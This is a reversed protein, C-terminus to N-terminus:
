SSHSPNYSSNECWSPFQGKSNGLTEGALPQLLLHLIALTVTVTAWLGLEFLARRFVAGVICFFSSNGPMEWLVPFASRKHSSKRKRTCAHCIGESLVSRPCLWLNGTAEKLNSSATWCKELVECSIPFISPSFSLSTLLLLLFPFNFDRWDTLFRRTGCCCCQISSKVQNQSLRKAVQAM